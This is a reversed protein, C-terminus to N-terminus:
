NEIYNRITDAMVGDGVTGVYGCRELIRVRFSSRSKLSGKLFEIANISKIIQVM